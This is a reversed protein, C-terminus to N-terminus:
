TAAVVNQSGFELYAQPDFLHSNTIKDYPVVVEFDGAELHNLADTNPNSMTELVDYYNCTFEVRHTTPDRYGSLMPLLRVEKRQDIPNITRVVRGVYVKGGELTIMVPMGRIVARRLLTEFDSDQVAIHMMLAGHLEGFRRIFTLLPKVFPTLYLANAAPGLRSFADLVRYDTLSLPLDLVNALVPGLIFAILLICDLSSQSWIGSVSKGLFTTQIETLASPYWVTDVFLLIHVAIACTTLFVAYFVARFYIRHGSERAAKYSSGSWISAFAYGGVVPLILFPTLDM